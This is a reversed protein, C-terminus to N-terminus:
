STVAERALRDSVHSGTLFQLADFGFIEANGDLIFSGDSNLPAIAIAARALALAGAATTIEGAEYVRDIAQDYNDTLQQYEAETQREREIAEGRWGVLARWAADVRVLEDCAAILENDSEGGSDARAATLTESAVARVAISATASVAFAGALLGRRSPTPIVASARGTDGANRM